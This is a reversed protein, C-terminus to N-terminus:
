LDCQKIVTQMCCVSLYFTCKAIVSDHLNCMFM